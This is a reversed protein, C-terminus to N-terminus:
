QTTMSSLRAVNKIRYQREDIFIIKKKLCFVAYSIIQHSSNLRTSKRDADAERRERLSQQRVLVQAPHGLVGPRRALARERRRHEGVLGEVLHARQVLDRLSAPLTERLERERPREAVRADRRREDARAADLLQLRVDGREVPEVERVLVERLDVVVRRVAADVEPGLRAGDSM